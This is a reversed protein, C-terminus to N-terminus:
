PASLARRKTSARVRQIGENLTYLVYYKNVNSVYRVPEQGILRLAAFEVNRFWLNPDFGMSRARSRARAIKLPGANYAALTFRIRAEPLLQDGSFYRDRLFALYKVGAHVNNDLSRIDPIAVNPDAATTPLIQMIGMAGSRNRKNQDLGSEQFAVALILRWDFGYQAAYRRIPEEYRRQRERDEEDLPNQIWKNDRFYRNFYINGLLTGRRHKLLFANLSRLLEPNDQRVAWAIECGERVKLNYLARLNSLVGSWTRTLNSDAVTLDIAGANVMELLDETELSEDVTVIHVPELDKKEFSENLRRLSEFYSSSRRVYIRRGALDEMRRPAPVRLHTVVVEDVGSLYPTTFSVQKQREPTVTLGAAAVDGLGEVLGPLLRDRSVPVLELTVALDGRRRGKNLSKEYRKLLKYEFGYARNEHLFFNTRNFTTLVRLHNRKLLGPLDDTYRENLHSALPLDDLSPPTPPPAEDPPGAAEAELSATPGDGYQQGCGACLLLLCLLIRLPDTSRCGQM